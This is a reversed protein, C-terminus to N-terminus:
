LEFFSKIKSVFKEIFSEKRNLFDDMIKLNRSQREAIIEGFGNILDPKKDLIKRMSDKTIELIVSDSAAIITASRNEGTFLSMEGFFQGPTIIGVKLDEKDKAKVMVNLVGEQLIFMSSGSDGQKIIIDGKRYHIGRISSLLEQLENKELNDFLAVQELINHNEEYDFKIGAKSLHHVLNCLILDKMSEPSQPEWPTFSFNIKYDISEKGIKIVSVAPLNNGSDSDTLLSHQAAAILIRKAQEISVRPSLSIQISFQVDKGIAQYNEIVFNTLLANPIILLTNNETKLQLSRGDFNTVKGIISSNENQNVLSIWDGIKFPRASQIFGSKSVKLFRPRIYVAIAVLILFLLILDFSAKLMFLKILLIAISIFYILVISIDEIKGISKTGINNKFESKWIVRRIILSLLYPASLWFVILTAYYFVKDLDYEAGANAPIKFINASLIILSFAFLVTATISSYHKQSSM